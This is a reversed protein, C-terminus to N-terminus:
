KKCPKISNKNTPHRSMVEQLTQHKNLSRLLIEERKASNMKFKTPSNYTHLQIFCLKLKLLEETKAMKM